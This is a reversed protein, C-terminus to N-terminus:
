GRQGAGQLRAARKGLGQGSPDVALIRKLKLAFAASVESVIEDYTKEGNMVRVADEFGEDTWRRM